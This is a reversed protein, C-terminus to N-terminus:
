IIIQVFRMRIPPGGRILPADYMSEAVQNLSNEVQMTKAHKVYLICGM